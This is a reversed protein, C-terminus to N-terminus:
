EEWGESPCGHKQLSDVHNLLTVEHGLDQLLHKTVMGKVFGTTLAYLEAEASNLSVTQQTRSWATLTANRWQVVGGSTSKCTTAQGACGSDTYVNVFKPSTVIEILCKASPVGKLYRVIRKLNMEDSETPCTIKRATEKVSFM